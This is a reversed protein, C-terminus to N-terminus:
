GGTHIELNLADLVVEIPNAYTLGYGTTGGRETGAFLLAAPSGDRTWILAGSDGGESFHGDSREISIQGDFRALRQGTGAGMAVVVNDVNVAVVRGATHGTTRGIKWVEDDPLLQVPRSKVPWQEATQPSHAWSSDHKIGGMLVAFACDVLNRSNVAFDIREFSFLTAVRSDPDQRRGGDRRGPQLIVDGLSAKNTDALIHNNSLIGIGGGDQHMCFCGISGATVRYHGISSGIRLPRHRGPNLARRSVPGTYIVRAEGRARLQAEQVLPHHLLEARQVFIGLKFGDPNRNHGEPPLVGLSILDRADYRRRKRGDVVNRFAATEPRPAFLPVEM